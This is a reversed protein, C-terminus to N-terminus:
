ARQVLAVGLAITAIGAVDRVGISEHLLVLSFITGFVPTLFFYSSVRSADGRALLWFWLFTAGVSMVLTLFLFSYIFDSTITVHPSPETVAAVGFCLVAATILQVATLGVLNANTCYRKFIITGAASGTVGLLALMADQPLASMNGNRMAAIAVVGGFGLVIGIVKKPNMREALLSTSLVAVIVPNLAGIISALGSSMRMVAIYTCGLYVANSCTGLAIAAGWESRGRPLPIRFLVAVVLIIAGAILFRFGLVWLPSAFEVCIKSPVFALSWLVIFLWGGVRGLPLSIGRLATM